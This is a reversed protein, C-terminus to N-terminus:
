KRGESLSFSFYKINSTQHKMHPSTQGFLVSFPTRLISVSWSPMPPETLKARMTPFHFHSHSPM